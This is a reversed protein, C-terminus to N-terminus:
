PNSDFGSPQLYGSRIAPNMDQVARSSSWLGPDSYGILPKQLTHEHHRVEVKAFGVHIPGQRDLFAGKVVDEIEEGAIKHGSQV